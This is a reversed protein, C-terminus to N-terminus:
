ITQFKKLAKQIQLVSCKMIGNQQIDSKFLPKLNIQIHNLRSIKSMNLFENGARFSKIEIVNTNPKCFVLNSFAAGHAGVICNANNFLFIQKIFSLQGIKYSQFKNRKLRKM